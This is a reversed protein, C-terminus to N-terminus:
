PTEDSVTIRVGVTFVDGAQVGIGQTRVTRSMADTRASGDLVGITWITKNTFESDGNITMSADFSVSTVDAETSAKILYNSAGGNAPDLVTQSSSFATQDTAVGVHTIKTKLADRVATLGNDLIAPM